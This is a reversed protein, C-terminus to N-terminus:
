EQVVWWRVVEMGAGGAAGTVNAGSGSASASGTAGGGPAVGAVGNAAGLPATIGFPQGLAGRPSGGGGGAMVASSSILSCGGGNGGPIHLNGGTGGTGGAGLSPTNGLGGGGGEATMLSGFETTGGAGGNGGNIAGATGGVGVTITIPTGVALNTFVGDAYEGGGGASGCNDQSAGGSGGGGGWIEADAIATAPTFSTAGTTTYSAGNVSVQQVGGIIAYVAINPTITPVGSGSSINDVTWYPNTPPNTDTSPALVFKYGVGPTLWVGAEGRSNLIVPDANPTDGTSDTYTTAPTTTGAAYTFLQCGVCLNGNNDTFHQIALPSLVTQAQAAAGVLGFALAALLRVGARRVTAM